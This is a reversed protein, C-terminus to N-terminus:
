QYTLYMIECTDPNFHQTQEERSEGAALGGAFKARYTIGGKLVGNEVMKYYVYIDNEVDEESHNELRIWQDAVSLTFLETHLSREQQLYALNEITYTCAQADEPLQAASAELVRVTSESTLTTIEFEGLTNGDEDRAVIKLYQIDQDSTNLVTLQWVNEVARDTGDEWFPGDYADVKEISIGSKLYIASDEQKEQGKRWLNWAFLGGVCVAVVIVLALVRSIHTNRYTKKTQGKSKGM